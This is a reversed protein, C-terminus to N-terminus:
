EPIKYGGILLANKIIETIAHRQDETLPELLHHIYDIEAQSIFGTLLYDTSTDLPLSIKIISEAGLGKTGREVCVLFQSSIGAREAVIEQTLKLEKRRKAIRQGIQEALSSNRKPMIGCVKQEKPSIGGM